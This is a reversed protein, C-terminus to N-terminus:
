AFPRPKCYLLFAYDYYLITYYLISQTICRLIRRIKYPYYRYLEEIFSKDYRIMQINFTGNALIMTYFECNKYIIAIINIIKVALIREYFTDIDPYYSYYVDCFLKIINMIYTSFYCFHLMNSSM